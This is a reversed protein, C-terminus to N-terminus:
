SLIFCSVPSKKYLFFCCRACFDYFLSIKILGTDRRWGEMEFYSSPFTVPTCARRTKQCDERLTALFCSPIIYHGYSVSTTRHM